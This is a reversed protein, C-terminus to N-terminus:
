WVMAVSARAGRGGTGSHPKGAPEPKKEGAHPPVPRATFEELSITGDGNADMRNFAAQIREASANAPAGAAFEVLSLGGSGDVDLAAFRAAQQALRAANLEAQM